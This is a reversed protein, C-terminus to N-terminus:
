LLMEALEDAEREAILKRREEEGEPTLHWVVDVGKVGSLRDWRPVTQIREKRVFGAPTLAQYLVSDATRKDVGARRNIEPRGIGVGPEMIILIEDRRRWPRVKREYAAKRYQLLQMGEARKRANAKFRERQARAMGRRVVVGMQPGTAPGRQGRPAISLAELNLKTFGGELVQDELEVTKKKVM